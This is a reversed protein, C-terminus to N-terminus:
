RWSTLGCLSFPIMADGVIGRRRRNAMFHIVLGGRRGEGGGAFRCLCKGPLKEDLIRLEVGIVM